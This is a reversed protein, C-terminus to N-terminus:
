RAPADAQNTVVANGHRPLDEAQIKLRYGIPLLRWGLRREIEGWIGRPLLLAFLM